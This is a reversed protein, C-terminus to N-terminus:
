GGTRFGCCRRCTAIPLSYSPSSSEKLWLRSKLSLSAGFRGTRWCRKWGTVIITRRRRTACTSSTAICMRSQCAGSGTSIVPLMEGHAIRDSPWMADPSQEILYRDHNGRVTPINLSTLRAAVKGPELPGSFCDGLNVIDDIGQRAIDSLVAQLALDNGHIDAIVALRM